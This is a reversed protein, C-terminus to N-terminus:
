IKTWEGYHALLDAPDRYLASAGAETLEVGPFGGCLVGISRLGARRAATADYPTDGIVLCEAASIGDLRALAAEFIDPHPKSKEADDKSTEGEVLDDIRAAQKYHKLEDGQASSALVTRIDDAQLKQFLERVAPFGTVQPLYEEKFLRSRLKELKPGLAQTDEEGLFVPMLQDAGKGIQSRMRAYPITFGFRAFAECWSRAHLDVSDILTGDVDFIVARLM